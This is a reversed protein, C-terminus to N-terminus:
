IKHRTLFDNIAAVVAEKKSNCSKIIFANTQNNDFKSIDYVYCCQEEIQFYINDLKEIAEVVEMIWNWDSDFKPYVYWCEGEMQEHLFSPNHCGDQTTIAGKPPSSLVQYGLFEACLKNYKLIEKQTM